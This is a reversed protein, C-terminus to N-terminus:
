RRPSACWAGGGRCARLDARHPHVAPEGPRGRRRHDPAPKADAWSMQTPNAGLATFTDQFLPSGVVRIKLGELDAPEEIDGRSNSIQRFGNEGWALPVVGKDEIASFIMEGAQATLVSTLLAAGAEM